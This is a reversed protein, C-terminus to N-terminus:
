RRVSSSSTSSARPQSCAHHLADDADIEAGRVAQDGHEVAVAGRTSGSGSVPARSSGDATASGARRRPADDARAARASAASRGNSVIRDTLRKM